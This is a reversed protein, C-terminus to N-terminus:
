RPKPQRLRSGAFAWALAASAVIYSLLWVVAAGTVGWLPLLWFGLIFPAVAAGLSSWLELDPREIARVGVAFSTMTAAFIPIASVVLIADSYGAYKGQYIASVVVDGYLCVALSYITSGAVALAALRGVVLGFGSQRRRRALAPLLLTALATNAHMIPMILNSLARLAGSAELGTWLPLLLYWISGRFWTLFGTGLSWRGYAWHHRWAARYLDDRRRGSAFLRLRFLLWAASIASAGGLVLFSSAPSLWRLASLNSALLLISTFYLASAGASTKPDFRIYCARRMMWLFLIMPMALSLGLIAASLADPRCLQLCLAAILLVLGAPITLQWHAYILSRLYDDLCSSFRSAGFVLMPETLLASHVTGLLLLISFAVAFAGYDAPTLWRALLVNILLNATAFLGQDLLAWSGAGIWRQVPRAEEEPLKGQRVRAGHLQRDQHPSM